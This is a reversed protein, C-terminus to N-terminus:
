KAGRMVIEARVEPKTLVIDFDTRFMDTARQGAGIASRWIVVAEDDDLHYKREDVGCAVQDAWWRFFGPCSDILDGHVPNAYVLWIGDERTAEALRVLIRSLTERGFPHYLFVVLEGSPLPASIADGCHVAIPPRHPHKRAVVAANRRAIRCLDPSIEVGVIRQFPFESAIVLARGKGCGLDWFTANHLSGVAGIAERVCNPQCGAYFLIEGDVRAGPSILSVPLIGSTDIAYEVDFPHIVGPNKQEWGWIVLRRGYQNRAVLKAVLTPVSRLFAFLMPRDYIAHSAGAGAAALRRRRSSGVAIARSCDWLGSVPGTRVLHAYGATETSRLFCLCDDCAGVVGQRV